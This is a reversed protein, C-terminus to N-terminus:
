PVFSVHRSIGFWAAKSLLSDRGKVTPSADCNRKNEEIVKLPGDQLVVQPGPCLDAQVSNCGEKDDAPEQDCGFQNLARPIQTVKVYPSEKTEDGCGPKKQRENRDENEDDPTWKSRHALDNAAHKEVPIEKRSGTNGNM